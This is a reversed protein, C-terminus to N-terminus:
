VNDMDIRNEIRAQFQFSTSVRDLDLARSVSLAEMLRHLGSHVYYSAPTMSAIIMHLHQTTSGSKRNNDVIEIYM